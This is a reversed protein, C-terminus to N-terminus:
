MFGGFTNGGGHYPYGIPWFARQHSGLHGNQSSVSPVVTTGAATSQAESHQKQIYKLFVEQELSFNISSNEAMTNGGRKDQLHTELLQSLHGLRSGSDGPPAQMTCADLRSQSESHADTKSKSDEPHGKARDAFSVEPTEDNADDETKSSTSGINSRNDNEIREENIDDYKEKEDNEGEELRPKKTTVTGDEGEDSKSPSKSRKSQKKGSNSRKGRVRWIFGLEDLKKIRDENLQPAPKGEMRREYQIRLTKVWIGIGPQCQPVMCNKHKAKYRKLCDFREDWSIHKGKPRGIELEYGIMNEVPTPEDNKKKKKEIGKPKPRSPTDGSSSKARWPFDIEDLKKIWEETLPSEQKGEEIGKYYGRLRTVFIALSSNSQPVNCHGHKSKFKFLQDMMEEFSLLTEWEFGISDLLEVKKPTIWPSTWHEEGHIEMEKQKRMAERTCRLFQQVGKESTVRGIRELANREKFEKLRRFCEVFFKDLGGRTDWLFGLHELAEFNSTTLVADDSNEKYLKYEIRQRQAWELLLVEDSSSNEYVDNPGGDDDSVYGLRHVKQASSRFDPTPVICDKHNVQYLFLKFFMANWDPPEQDFDFGIAILADIETPSMSNMQFRRRQGSCWMGLDTSHPVTADGRKKIYERLNVFHQEWDQDSLPPPLQGSAWVFHISNMKRIKALITMEEEVSTYSALRMERQEEVWTALRARRQRKTRSCDSAKYSVPPDYWAEPTLNAYCETKYELLALFMSLWDEDPEIEARSDATISRSRALRLMSAIKGYSSTTNLQSPAISGASIRSPTPASPPPATAAPAQASTTSGSAISESALTLSLNPARQSVLPVKASRLSRRQM